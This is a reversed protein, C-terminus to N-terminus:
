KSCVSALNAGIWAPLDTVRIANRQNFTGMKDWAVGRGRAFAARYKRM